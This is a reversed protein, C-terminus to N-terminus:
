LAGSLGKAQPWYETVTKLDVGGHHYHTKSSQQHSTHLTTPNWYKLTHM